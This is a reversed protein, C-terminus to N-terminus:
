AALNARTMTSIILVLISIQAVILLGSRLLLTFRSTRGANM